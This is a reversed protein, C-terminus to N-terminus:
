LCQRQKILEVLKSKENIKNTTVTIYKKNISFRKFVEIAIEESEATVISHQQTNLIFTYSNM